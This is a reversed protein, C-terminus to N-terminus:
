ATSIKIVVIVDKSEIWDTQDSSPRFRGRFQKQSRDKAAVAVASAM